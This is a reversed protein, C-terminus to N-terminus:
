RDTVFGRAGIYNATIFFRGVLGRAELAEAARMASVGGDDLTIVPAPRAPREARVFERIADLHAGFREPTVKYLAADRGPFGRTDEAGAAVVDHYMLANM